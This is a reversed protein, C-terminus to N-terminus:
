CSYECTSDCYMISLVEGDHYVRDFALTNDAGRDVIATLKTGVCVDSPYQQVVGEIAREPSSSLVDSIDEDEIHDM